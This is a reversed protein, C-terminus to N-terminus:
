FFFFIERRNTGTPKPRTPKPLTPKPWTSGERKDSRLDVPPANERGDVRENHLECREWLLRVTRGEGGRIDAVWTSERVAGGIM